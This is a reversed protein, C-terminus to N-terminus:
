IDHKGNIVSGCSWFSTDYPNTEPYKPAAESSYYAQEATPQHVSACGCGMLILRIFLGAIQRMAIMTVSGLSFLQAVASERRSGRYRFQGRWRRNAGAVEM